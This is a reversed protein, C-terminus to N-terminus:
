QLSRDNSGRQEPLKGPGTGSQGEQYRYLDHCWRMYTSCGAKAIAEPLGNVQEFTMEDSLEVLHRSDLIEYEAFAGDVHIGTYKSNPCYRWDACM